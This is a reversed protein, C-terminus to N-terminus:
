LARARGSRNQRRPPTSRVSIRELMTGLAAQSQDVAEQWLSLADPALLPVNAEVEGGLDLLKGHFKDALHRMRGNEALCVMMVQELGRNRALTLAQRLLTTGIGRDQWSKEVTVALEAQTGAPAAFRLLEAAGRVQGDEVYAVVMARFRDIAEIHAAVAGDSLQGAFRRQRDEPDLRLLHDRLKAFETPLLIRTVHM